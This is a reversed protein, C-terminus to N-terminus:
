GGTPTPRVSPELANARMAALSRKIEEELRAPFDEGTRRWDSAGGVLSINALLEQRLSVDALCVTQVIAEHVGVLQKAAEDELGGPSFLGDCSTDASSAGLHQGALGHLTAGELVPAGEYMLYIFTSRHGVDVLVGTDMGNNYVSLLPAPFCLLSQVTKAAFAHAAREMRHVATVNPPESLVVGCEDLEDFDEIDHLAEGIKSTDIDGERTLYAEVLKGVGGEDNADGLRWQCSGADVVFVVDPLSM